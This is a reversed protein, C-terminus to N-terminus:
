TSQNKASSLNKGCSQLAPHHKLKPIIMSAFIAHGEEDAHGEWLSVRFTYGNFRHYYDETEIVDMGADKMLREATQTIRHGRGGYSPFQDLVLALVPPLNNSMVFTNMERVDRGFREQYGNFDKLIDDFFDARLGASRLTADYGDKVLRVFRSRKTLFQEINQPIPFEFGRSM